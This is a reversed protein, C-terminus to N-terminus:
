HGQHGGWMYFCVLNDNPLSGFLHVNIKAWFVKGGLPKDADLMDLVMVLVEILEM